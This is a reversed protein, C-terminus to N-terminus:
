NSKKKLLDYFEHLNEMADEKGWNYLTRHWDPNTWIWLWNLNNKRWRDRKIVISPLHVFPIPYSNSLSGDIYKKGRFSYTLKNSDFIPIFSSALMGELLDDKSKWGSIIENEFNSCNTLSVHYINKIKEFGEDTLHKKFINRFCNNLKGICGFRYSNLEEFMPINIKEFYYDVDFDLALLISPIIGGSSGSFIVNDLEFHKQITSAVGLLYTFMGGCGGFIMQVKGKNVENVEEDEENVEENVEEDELYENEDDELYEKEDDDKSFKPEKEIFEVNNIDTTDTSDNNIIINKKLSM